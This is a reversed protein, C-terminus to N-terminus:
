EAAPPFGQDGDSRSVGDVFVERWACGARAAEPEM